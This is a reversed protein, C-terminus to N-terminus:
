VVTGPTTRQNRSSVIQQQMEQDMLFHSLLQTLSFDLKMQCFFIEPIYSYVGYFYLDSGGNIGVGFKQLRWEM